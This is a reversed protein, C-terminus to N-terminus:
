ENTKQHESEITRPNGDAIKQGQQGGGWLKKQAVGWWKKQPVGWWEEQAM